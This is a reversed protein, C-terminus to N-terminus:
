QLVARRPLSSRLAIAAPASSPIKKLFEAEDIEACDKAAIQRTSGRKFFFWWDTYAEYPKLMWRPVSTVFWVLPNYVDMAAVMWDPEGCKHCVFIMPGWSMPYGVVVAFILGLALRKAWRERRNVIRITLWIAFAAVGVRLTALVIRVTMPGTVVM